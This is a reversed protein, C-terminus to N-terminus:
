VQFITIKHLKPITLSCYGDNLLSTAALDNYNLYQDMNVMNLKYTFNYIYM